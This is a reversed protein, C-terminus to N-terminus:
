FEGLAEQVKRRIKANPRPSKMEDLFKDAQKLAKYSNDMDGLRKYNMGQLYYCNVIRNQPIVRSSGIEFAKTVVRLSEDFKGLQFQVQASLYKSKAAEESSPDVM